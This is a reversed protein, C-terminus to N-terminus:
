SWASITVYRLCKMRRADACFTRGSGCDHGCATCVERDEVGVCGRRAVSANDVAGLSVSRNHAERVRRQTKPHFTVTGPAKQPLAEIVTRECCARPYAVWDGPATGAELTAPRCGNEQAVGVASVEDFM